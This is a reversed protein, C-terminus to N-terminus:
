EKGLVVAAAQGTPCQNLVLAARGADRQVEGHVVHVPCDPDPKEYNQTVPITDHMLGLVSAAMEVAGSGAGLNGFASKPATVPVDNLIAHIGQAEERDGDVTSVGNANVHGIDGAGLRASRLAGEISRRVAQSSAAVGRVSAAYTSSYGLVRALIRAQRAAAHQRTELILIGAGEGNVMGDRLADFPRSAAEPRDSRHSLAFDGRYLMQTVGVRCGTGGVLMVDAMGREMVRMAEAVALLSSVDGQVITNNHARADFAIGIHCAAMNPLYKLMWLPYLQSFAKQGWLDYQFEGEPSCSRYADSLEALEGYFMESGIIAGFRDGDIVEPSLQADRMALVAAAFAMQIERSMVKLSKRPTVYQKPDFDAVVGGFPVPLRAAGAQELTRIGSRGNVLAHWFADRGIGLPSVIGVGTIVVERGEAM